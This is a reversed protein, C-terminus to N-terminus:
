LNRRALYAASGLSFLIFIIWQKLWGAPLGRVDPITELNLTIWGLYSFFLVLSWTLIILPEPDRLATIKSSALAVIAFMAAFAIFFKSWDDFGAGGFNKIDDLFHKLSFEGEYTYQVNYQLSVTNNYTLNLEYVAKSIIKSQNGTNYTISLMCQSGNYGTGNSGLIDSSNKIYFYCDTINWISSTMNFVFTYNTENNLSTDRPLFYYNIGSYISTIVDEVAEGLTVTRIDTSTVRLNFSDTEYGSKVFTFTYTTDPDVWFSVFGSDDTDRVEITVNSSLITVTVEVEEIPDGVNNVVRFNATVGAATELLLLNKEQTANSFVADSETSVREEYGAASYTIDYDGYLTQYGPQVCVSFNDVNTKTITLTKTPSSGNYHFVATVDGKIRSSNLEDIITFNIVPYGSISCDTLETPQYLALMEAITLTRNWIKIEDIKGDFENGATPRNLGIYTYDEDNEPDTPTGQSTTRNTGNIYTIMKTGNWICGVHTWVGTGVLAPTKSYQTKGSNCWIEDDNYWLGWSADSGATQGHVILGRSSESTDAKIWASISWNKFQSFNGETAIDIYGNSSGDYDVSYLGGNVGDQTTPVDTSFTAGNQFDGYSGTSSDNLFIGSGVESNFYVNWDSTSYVLPLFLIILIVGLLIKKIM